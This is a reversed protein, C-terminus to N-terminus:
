LYVHNDALSDAQSHDHTVFLVTKKSEAYNKVIENILGISDKDINSTAEDLMLLTPNFIMARAIAVKQTEGGSLENAKKSQLDTINLRHLMKAVLIKIEQKNYNRVRLPYAINEYVSRSFLYPKQQVLTMQKALKKSYPNGNYTISGQNYSLQGSLINLLTTKGCGNAGLITTLGSGININKIDLVKQTKYNKKLGTIEINM